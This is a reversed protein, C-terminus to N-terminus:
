FKPLQTQRVSTANLHRLIKIILFLLFWFWDFFIKYFIVPFICEIENSLFFYQSSYKNFNYKHKFCLRNIFSNYASGSYESIKLYEPSLFVRGKRTLWGHLQEAWDLKFYCRGLILCFFYLKQNPKSRIKM